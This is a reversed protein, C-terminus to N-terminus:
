RRVPEGMIKEGYKVKRYIKWGITAFMGVLMVVSTVGGALGMFGIAIYLLLNQLM